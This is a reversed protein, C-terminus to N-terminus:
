EIDRLMNYVTLAPYRERLRGCVVAVDRRADLFAVAEELWGAIIECDSDVFQVYPLNPLLQRVREFGANRARAATFPFRMDLEIVDSGISRAMAVSGDTSDSDVYVLLAVRGVVSDFCKRLCEGVNRGIAVVGAKSLIEGYESLAM